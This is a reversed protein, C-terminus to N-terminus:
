FIFKCESAVKELECKPQLIATVVNKGGSLSCLHPSPEQHNLAFKM